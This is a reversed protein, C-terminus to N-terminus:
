ATLQVKCVDQVDAGVDSLYATTDYRRGTSLKGSKMDLVHILLNHFTTREANKSVSLKLPRLVIPVWFRLRSLGM